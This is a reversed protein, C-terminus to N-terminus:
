SDEERSSVEVSVQEGLQTSLHREILERFRDEIYDKAFANPVSLDLAGDRLRTPICGEFWVSLSPADIEESADQLVREWAQSAAPDASPPPASESSPSEGGEEEAAQDIELRRQPPEIPPPLKEGIYKNLWAGSSRVNKQYPLCEVYFTCTEAGRSAVLERAVNPWVGNRILMRIAGNEEMTWSRELHSREAIFEPAVEFRALNRKPFTVSRLFGKHELEEFAGGLKEKIKSPYKYSAKMGLWERLTTLEVSWVLDDGRKSDVCRYMSRAHAKDLSLYFNVDLQKIYGAMYSRIIIEDFRITHRETARGFRDINGKFSVRWVNFHESDYSLNDKNYFANEADVQTKGIRLLCERVKVYNQGNHALGLLQLLEYITFRLRGDKPMGGRMQVLAKIAVYVDQDLQGLDGLEEPPKFRVRKQGESGDSMRYQEVYELYGTDPDKPYSGFLALDELNREFDVMDPPPKTVVVVEPSKQEQM